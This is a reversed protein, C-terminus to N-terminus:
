VPSGPVTVVIDDAAGDAPLQCSLRSASTRPAEACSLMQEEDDTMAPFRGAVSEDVYVHCTACMMNGGCEGVIGDVDGALAASMVSDGPGADVTVRTGDPQIYSIKTM